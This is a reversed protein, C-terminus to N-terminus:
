EVRGLHNKIADLQADLTVHLARRIDALPVERVWAERAAAAIVAQLAVAVNVYPDADSIELERKVLEIWRVGLLKLVDPAIKEVETEAYRESSFGFLQALMRM